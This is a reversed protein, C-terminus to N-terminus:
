NLLLERDMLNFAADPNITALIGAAALIYRNDLVIKPSQPSLTAGDQRALAAELINVGQTGHILVGGTGLVIPTSRFDTGEKILDVGQNPIYVVNTKGCHREISLTACSTALLGDLSSSFYNPREKLHPNLEREQCARRIRDQDLGKQRIMKNLWSADQQLVTSANWCMGLDGQVSRMVPPCAPGRSRFGHSRYQNAQSSHIDTTAGGIDIAFVDGVGDRSDTGASLLTIATLVAEPTPMIVNEIFETASSLGKGMIVNEIFLRNIAHRAPEINMVDIEPLVNPVVVVDRSTESFIDAVIGAIDNNCAVIIPCERISNALLRANNIVQESQGGDTGGSFLVVDPKVDELIKLQTIDLRGALVGSVKAGANLAAQRSAAATYDEVLGISVVSLGGGASSAARVEINDPSVTAVSCASELASRYGLMVDTQVTTPTQATALLRGTPTEVLAVKTFTSGFDTLAFINSM